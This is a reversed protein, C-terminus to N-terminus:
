KSELDRMLPQLEQPDRALIRVDEKIVIQELGPDAELGWGTMVNSGKTVKVFKRSTMKESLSDWVLESTELVAGEAKLRVNGYAVLKRRKVSYRASDAELVAKRGGQISYLARVKRGEVWDASAPHNIEDAFLEVETRGKIVQVLHVNHMQSEEAPKGAVAPGAKESAPRSSCGGCSFVAWVVAAPVLLGTRWNM